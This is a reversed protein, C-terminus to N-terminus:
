EGLHSIGAITYRTCYWTYYTIKTITPVDINQKMKKEAVHPHAYISTVFCTRLVNTIWTRLSGRGKGERGGEGTGEM